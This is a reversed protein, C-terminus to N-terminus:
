VAISSVTIPRVTIASVTSKSAFTDKSVFYYGTGVSARNGLNIHSLLVKIILQTVASYGMAM